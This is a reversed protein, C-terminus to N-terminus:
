RFEYVVKVWFKFRFNRWQLLSNIHLIPNGFWVSLYVDVM